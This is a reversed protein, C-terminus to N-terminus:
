KCASMCSLSRASEWEVGDPRLGSRKRGVSGNSAKRSPRQNHRSGSSSLWSFRGSLPVDSEHGRCLGARPMVRGSGGAATCINNDIELAGDDCYRVLAPWLELAYGIAKAVVSKISLQALKERLWAHMLDLLPRARTQRICQREDPARGRIENEIAYLAAIRQLAETAVPSAHAQYLDHLKRRVHGAPPRSSAASQIKMSRTSVPSPM